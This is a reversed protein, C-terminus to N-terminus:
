FSVKKYEKVFSFGTKWPNKHAQHGWYTGKPPSKQEGLHLMKYSYQMYTWIFMNEISKLDCLYIKTGFQFHGTQVAITVNLQSLTM